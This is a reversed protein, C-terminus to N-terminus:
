SSHSALPRGTTLSADIYLGLYVSSMRDTSFSLAKAHARQGFDARAEADQMLWELARMLKDPSSDSVFAAAGQWQRLLEDSECLILACGSLAADLVAYGNRAGTHVFIAARGIFRLANVPTM